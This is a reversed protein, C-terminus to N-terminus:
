KRETRGNGQTGTATKKDSEVGTAPVANSLAGSSTQAAQPSVTPPTVQQPSLSKIYAILQMVQAESMQGQFTPMIPEFGEVIKAQSNLISERIYGDDAATTGGGRLHVTSGYLGTLM